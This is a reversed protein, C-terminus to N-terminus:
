LSDSGHLCCNAFFSGEIACTRQACRECSAEALCRHVWAEAIIHEDSLRAASGAFPSRGAISVAALPVYRLEPDTRGVSRLNSPAFAKPLAAAGAVRGRGHARRRSQIYAEHALVAHICSRQSPSAGFYGSQKEDDNKRVLSPFRSIYWNRGSIV